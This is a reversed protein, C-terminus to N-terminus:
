EISRLADRGKPTLRYVQAESHRETTRRQGDCEIFGGQKLDTCRQRMSDGGIRQLENFNAGAAGADAILELCKWRQTGLRPYNDIAASRSTAPDDSHWRGIEAIDGEPAPAVIFDEGNKVELRDLAASLDSRKAEGRRLTVTPIGDM